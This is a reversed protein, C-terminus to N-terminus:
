LKQYHNLLNEVRDQIIQKLSEPKVSIVYNGYRMFYDAIFEEEELNYFGKIITKNGNEITMSPYHEKYFLDKAQELIEVEFDISKESHYMKLSRSVLEDISFHSKIEAEEIFTIRDCRFVRYKNTNLEMGIAYWQGFKATIKFFQVHYSKKQKNKEYQIKCTSEILISKLIKDLFRSVHHHQYIEFQLVKKMKHIQKIQEKSLCNEFKENLKTVSLHFPTSQYSELTLMAFYLAYVEDITFTIPSLLRNKLIGYRGHRGHESFIPMGLQELSSIDRLATSKSINYKEMLDHLNFFERGNLYRIMDNIRESKKM